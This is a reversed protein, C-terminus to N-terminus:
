GTFIKLTPISVNIEHERMMILSLMKKEANHKKNKTFFVATHHSSSLVDSTSSQENRPFSSLQAQLWSISGTHLIVQIRRM